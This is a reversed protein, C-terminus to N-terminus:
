NAAFCYSYGNGGTAVLNQQSCGRSMHSANWSTAAPGGGRRDSHGVMAGGTTAPSNVNMWPGKGIRDRANVARQGGQAAASLYARWTRNGAGVAAALTATSTAGAMGGLNAGDGSGASTIFFSMQDQQSPVGLTGVAAFLAAGVAGPM